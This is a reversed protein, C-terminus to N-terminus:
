TDRKAPSLNTKAEPGRAAGLNHLELLLTLLFAVLSNTTEFHKIKHPPLYRARAELRALKFITGSLSCAINICEKEPLHRLLDLHRARLIGDLAIVCGIMRPPKKLTHKRGRQRLSAAAEILTRASLAKGSTECLASLSLTQKVEIIACVCAAPVHSNGDRRLVSASCRRDFIIVDIKDSLQGDGGAVFGQEASYRNPLFAGLWDLWHLEAVDGKGQGGPIRRRGTLKTEMQAQLGSFIMSPDIPRRTM